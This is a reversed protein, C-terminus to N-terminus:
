KVMDLVSQIDFPKTIINKVMHSVGEACLQKRADPAGSVIFIDGKPPNDCLRNLIEIGSLGPLKIDLLIIDYPDKNILSLAEEGEGVMHVSHGDEILMESLEHSLVLDDDVILIRKSM